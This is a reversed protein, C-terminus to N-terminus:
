CAAKRNESEEINKGRAVERKGIIESDTDECELWGSDTECWGQM